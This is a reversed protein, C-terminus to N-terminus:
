SHDLNLCFILITAVFAGSGLGSSSGEQVSSSTTDPNQRIHEAGEERVHQESTGGVGPGGAMKGDSQINPDLM